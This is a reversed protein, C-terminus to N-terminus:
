KSWRKGVKFDAKAPIEGLFPQEVACMIESMFQEADKGISEDVEAVIEDHVQLILKFKSGFPNEKALKLMAMKTIDAATGQIVHNFGERKVQGFYKDLEKPTAFVPRSPFYRKRGLATISYGLELVREQVLRQFGSLQAYGEYFRAIIERAKEKPISLNKMLGYETTGYIIAFNLTKGSHRESQTVDSLKKDFQIAATATHMDAGSLYAEIIKRDGSLSGCLRFEQQSYDGSILVKGEDAIFAPRRSAPINQLNPGRSALRGTATGINIYDTHIRGTVPNILSLFNEGYTSALKEMERLDLLSDIAPHPPLLRLTKENTDEARIGALRLGAKVQKHSSPNFTRLAWDRVLSPDTISELSRRLIKANVPIALRDALEYASNIQPFKIYSFLVQKFKDRLIGASKESKDTLERWLVKDLLTGNLEMRGIVPILGMELELVKDMRSNSILQTQKRYIEELYLVDLSAYLIQQESFDDGPKKDLFDGRTDKELDVSCYKNTLRSLSYLVEGVGSNILTECYMTDHVNELLIGTKEFIFKIDFKANHFIFKTTQPNLIEICYRLFDYGLKGVNFVFCDDGLKVQFLLLDNVYPDLGNSEIDCSAVTFSRDACVSVFKGFEKSNRSNIYIVM